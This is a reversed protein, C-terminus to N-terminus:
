REGSGETGGGVLDLFADELRRQPAIRDVAVGAAVLESVLRRRPVGDLDCVLRGGGDERVQRVGLRRLVAIAGEQDSVDLLVTSGEGILEAVSGGAVVRGRHVVIAHTCTQEVEALMHSSVLVARGNSAYRQLVRRMEAIQPPDLGDTPEDLVLLDPLGLMAQAIALRQRMGHSYTGVRRGAAGGLGAIELAEELRAEAPPRGTAQWFRRLNDAGSLHPLFGPGEVLAGFRSLVPAGGRLPHGFVYVAGRTPATLGLLVRLTTTKGAGNPGLMGVVQEPEVRFSIDDVALFGNGYQKRLGEVVLPVRAYEVRTRTDGRRRRWRGAVIMLALGLLLAVVVAGLVWPWYWGATGLETGSVTPLEVSGLSMVTYQAPQAPGLFAQDSTAVVLLLRDGAPVQHVIAPLQVTVPRAEAIATPLGSLRVPAVLSGPLTAGLHPTLDYLKVFLVASGTPSAVRLRVTPSGVITVASGLTPSLFDAHQGPIDRAAAGTMAATPSGLGPLSSTAAPTGGPPNAIVQPPGKVEILRERQGDLGPYHPAESAISTPDGAEDYGSLRSFVFGGGPAPGVGRLYHNLWQLTEAHLWDQDVSTGQGGDHGGTYWAVHVPTGTRAIGRANADAESLPFLTDTEGQVLLAPARIRDLVGAPSSQELLARQAPTLTGTTASERYLQCIAPALRGCSPNGDGDPIGVRAGSGGGFLLGAWAKKFVGDTGGGAVDNPLFARSLDNWTTEAVIADVRHDYAALLLALAGGYSGGVVAVRPDDPGDHLVEPRTSVWNILQSADRVEWDPSDLHIQGGSRGFGEATWTLVAFGHEAFRAADGAVSQKTQGYGHALLIAPVPHQPTAADPRFYTTDLRIPVNGHPGTHVTIFRATATYGPPRTLLGWAGVAAALVALIAV